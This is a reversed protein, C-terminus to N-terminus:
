QCKQSRRPFVCKGMLNKWARERTGFSRTPVASTIWGILIKPINVRNTRCRWFNWVSRSWVNQKFLFCFWILDFVSFFFFFSRVLQGQRVLRVQQVLRDLWTLIYILLVLSGTTKKQTHTTRVGYSWDRRDNGVTGHCWHVRNLFAFHKSKDLWFNIDWIWISQFESSACCVQRELLGLLELLGLWV